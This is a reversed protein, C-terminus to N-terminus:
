KKVTQPFNNYLLQPLRRYDYWVVTLVSKDWYKGIKILYDGESKKNHLAHSDRVAIGGGENGFGGRRIENFFTMLKRRNAKVVADRIMRTLYKNAM